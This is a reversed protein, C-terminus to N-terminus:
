VSKDVCKIVFRFFVVVFKLKIVACVVICYM